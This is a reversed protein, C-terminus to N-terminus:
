WADVEPAPERPTIQAPEEPTLDIQFEDLIFWALKEADERGFQSMCAGDDEIILRVTKEPVNAGKEFVRAELM